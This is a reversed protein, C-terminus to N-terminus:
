ARSAGYGTDGKHGKSHSAWAPQAHLTILAPILAAGSRLLRRRTADQALPERCAEAGAEAAEQESSQNLSMSQDRTEPTFHESM